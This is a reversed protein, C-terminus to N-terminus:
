AAELVDVTVLDAWTVLPPHDAWTYTPPYDQWAMTALSAPLDSLNLVIQARPQQEVNWQTYTWGEVIGVWSSAPAPQPLGNLEVHDGCVLRMIQAATAADCLDPWVAVEGIGWREATQTALIHGLRSTADTVTALQTGLYAYRQGYRAQSAPDTGEAYAQDEGEPPLGYGVRVHNVIAAGSSQWEPEWIVAGPPIM